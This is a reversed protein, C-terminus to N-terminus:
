NDFVMGVFSLVVIWVVLSFVGGGWSAGTSCGIEFFNALGEVNQSFGVVIKAPLLWLFQIILWVDSISFVLDGNMDKVLYFRGCFDNM